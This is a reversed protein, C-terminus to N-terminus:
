ISKWIGTGIWFKDGNWTGDGLIWVDNVSLQEIKFNWDSEQTVNFKFGFPKVKFNRKDQQTVVFKFNSVQKTIFNWITAIIKM